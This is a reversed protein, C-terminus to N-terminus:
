HHYQLLQKWFTNWFSVEGTAPLHRAGGGAAAQHPGAGRGLGLRDLGYRLGNGQGLVAAAGRQHRRWAWQGGPASPCFVVSLCSM